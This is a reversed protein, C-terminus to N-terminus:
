HIRRGAAHGHHGAMCPLMGLIVKTAVETATSTNLPPLIAVASQPFGGVDVLLNELALMNHPMEVCDQLVPLPSGLLM